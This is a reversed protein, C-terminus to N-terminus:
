REDVVMLRGIFVWSDDVKTANQTTSVPIAFGLAFAAFAMWAVLLVSRLFQKRASARSRASIFIDSMTSEM